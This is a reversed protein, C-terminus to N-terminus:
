QPVEPRPGRRAIALEEEHADETLVFHGDLLVAGPEGCAMRRLVAEIHRDRGLDSQTETVCLLRMERALGLM